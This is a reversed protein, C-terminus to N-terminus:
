ESLASLKQYYDDIKTCSLLEPKQLNHRESEPINNISNKIILFALTVLRDLLPEKILDLDVVIIFYKKSQRYHLKKKTQSHWNKIEVLFNWLLCVTM